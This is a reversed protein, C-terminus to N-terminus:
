EDTSTPHHVPDVVVHSHGQQCKDGQLTRGQESIGTERFFQAYDDISGQGELINLEAGLARAAEATFQADVVLIKGTPAIRGIASGALVVPDGPYIAGTAGTAFYENAQSISFPGGSAYKLPRLGFPANVNAM